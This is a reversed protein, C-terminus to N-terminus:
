SVGPGLPDSVGRRRSHLSAISPQLVPGGHLVSTPEPPAKITAFTPRAYVRKPATVVGRCRKTTHSGGAWGQVVASQVERRIVRDVEASLVM